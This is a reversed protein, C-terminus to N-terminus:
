KGSGPDHKGGGTVPFPSPSGPISLIITGSSYLARLQMLAPNDRLVKGVNSLSRLAATEGRAKELMALGEQRARAVQTFVRKMEGPFMVDKVDAFILKLGLEQIKGEAKKMLQESIADRHGVIDDIKYSSVVERLALQLVLYLADQFKNGIRNVAINFDEIEYGVAISIKLPVGDSTLIEQGKLSLFRPRGDYKEVATCYANYWYRGPGLVDKFRGRRYTLAREYEFVTVSRLTSLIIIVAVVIAAWIM